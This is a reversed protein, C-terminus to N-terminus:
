LGVGSPAYSLTLNMVLPTVNPHSILLMWWQPALRIIM